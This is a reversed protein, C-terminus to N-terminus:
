EAPRLAARELEFCAALNRVVERDTPVLSGIGPTALYGSLFARRNRAEWAGGLATLASQGSSDRETVSVAAVHHFSWLMDAVDGLPSRPEAEGSGQLHGGPMCDSVVWGHDTRATRGLHFDGHTRIESSSGQTSKLSDLTQAVDPAELVLPDLERLTAEVGEAWDSVRASRRGFARDLALHMRATMTGLSRAESAFDAGAEDPSHGSAFLDRLSTRALEWGQASGLLLEQVIGLDRGGRRWLALPAPLHNFGAEDLAVLMEVGPHPGDVLWPFVTLSVKDGLALVVGLEDCSLPSAPEEPEGGTVASLVLPALDADGLADVVVAPGYQDEFLGLVLEEGNRLSRAEEQARHLGLVAHAARGDVTAILDLISPRESRLVEVERVDIASEPDIDPRGHQALWAHVLRGLSASREDTLELMVSNM